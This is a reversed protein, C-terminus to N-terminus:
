ARSSIRSDVGKKKNPRYHTLMDLCPLINMRSVKLVKMNEARTDRMMKRFENRLVMTSTSDTPSAPGRSGLSKVREENLQNELEECRRQLTDSSEELREREKEDEISQQTMVEYEAITEKLEKQLVV